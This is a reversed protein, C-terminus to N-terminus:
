GVMNLTMNRTCFIHCNEAGKLGLVSGNLSSGRDARKHRLLSNPLCGDRRHRWSSANKSGPAPTLRKIRLRWIWLDDAEVDRDLGRSRCPVCTPTSWRTSGTTASKARLATSREVSLVPMDGRHEGADTVFVGRRGDFSAMRRSTRRAMSSVSSRPVQATQAVADHQKQAEGTAQASGFRRGRHQRSAVFGLWQIQWERSDSPVSLIGRQLLPGHPTQSALGAPAIVFRSKGAISVTQCTPAGRASEEPADVILCALPQQATLCSGEPDLGLTPSPDQPRISFWVERM